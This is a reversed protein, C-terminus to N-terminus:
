GDNKKIYRILTGIYSRLKKYILYLQWYLNWKLAKNPDGLQRNIIRLLLRKNKIGVVYNAHFIVPAQMELGPFSSKKYLNLMRGVPFSSQPLESVWSPYNLDAYMKTIVDDDGLYPNTALGELHNKQCNELLSRVEDCDRFASIGMCLRPDSLDWSFSQIQLHIDSRANFANIIVASADSLWLLDLDSYIVSKYGKAFINSILSWKLSVIRYFDTESFDRYALNLGYDFKTGLIEELNVLESLNILTIRPSEPINSLDKVNIFGIFIHCESNKLVSGIAVQPLEDIENVLLFTVATNEKSLKM